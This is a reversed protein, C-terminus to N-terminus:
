IYITISNPNNIYFQRSLKINGNVNRTNNSHDGKIKRFAIYVHGGEEHKSRLKTHPM